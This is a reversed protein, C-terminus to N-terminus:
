PILPKLGLGRGMSYESMEEQSTHDESLVVTIIIINVALTEGIHCALCEALCEVQM